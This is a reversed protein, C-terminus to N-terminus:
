DLWVNYYTPFATPKLNAVRIQHPLMPFFQGLVINYADEYAAAQMRDVVAKKADLNPARIFEAVLDPYGPWGWLTESLNNVPSIDPQACTSAPCFNTFLNWDNAGLRSIVTALDMGPMEVTMGAAELSPKLVIGLPNLQPHDSSNLIVITEGAYGAEALLEAAREPNNQNYLEESVTSEWPTGCFFVSSCLIWLEPDGLSAMMSEADVAALIAQRVLKNDTPAFSGKAWVESQNGPKTVDLGIDDNGRIRSAFDLSIGDVIDWQGTELGAYKTEDNPIEVWEIRDLYARKGGALFNEPEPRSIFGDYRVISLKNGPEWTEFEYPGTGIWETIPESFPASNAIDEPWIQPSLHPSTGLGIVLGGFPENLNIVFTLDDVKVAESIFGATNKVSPAPLWRNISAIVDDSTVTDGNHFTIGDRLTFTYTMNDDSISWTDVLQPQPNLNFDWAFLHEYVHVSTHVSIVAPLPLPDLSSFSGQAVVRLTGGYKPETTIIEREKIIKEEVQVKEVEVVVTEGPVEVEVVKEVVVTEGPVEVEVVKEVVVTEGAVEVERVVEKEVVVTEGPVEVEVVKEVVVTEGPVEVVETEGAGCAMATVLGLLLVAFTALLPRPDTLRRIMDM